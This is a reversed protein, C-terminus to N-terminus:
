AIYSKYLVGELDDLQEETFFKSDIHWTDQRTKKFHSLTNKATRGVIGDYNSCKIELLTLVKPLWKPPPTTYPYAEVMGCLGMTAGHVLLLQESNMKGGKVRKNEKLVQKFKKYCYKIISERESDLFILLLLQFLSKYEERLDVQGYFLKEICKEFLIKRHEFSRELFRVSAYTFHFSGLLKSKSKSLQKWGMDNVILDIIEVAQEDTYRINAFMMFWIDVRLESLKCADKMEDLENILPLVFPKFYKGMLGNQSTKLINLMLSRVGRVHCMFDSNAIEQSTLGITSDKLKITENLIKVMEDDFKNEIQFIFTPESDGDTIVKKMFEDFNNNSCQSQYFLADFLVESVETSITAYPHDLISFLKNTVEDFQHFRNLMSQMLSKLLSLRCRLSFPSIKSDKSVEFDCISNLIQPTRRMDFHSPLWWCFISWLNMTSQTLDKNFINTIRKSFEKDAISMYEQKKKCAFLVGCIIETCAVHTSREEAEYLEDFLTFFDKLKLNPTLDYITLTVISCFFYVIGPMFVANVESEDIHNQMLKKLWGKTISASFKEIAIKETENLNLTPTDVNLHVKLNNNWSLTPVWIKNDIFFKPHTLNKMEEFFDNSNNFGSINNLESINPNIPNISLINNLDYNFYARTEVTDLVSAMWCMGKKSLEPHSGDIFKIMSELCYPDLPVEYHSHIDHLLELVMQLFKWNLSKNLRSVTVKVLNSLNKVLHQRKKSKALKLANIKLDIDLDPPRICEVVSEEFICVMLPIKVYKKIARYLKMAMATVEAENIDLSRVILNEYKEAVSGSKIALGRLRRKDFVILINVLKEKDNNLLAQEWEKFIGFVLYTCNMVRSLVQGLIHSSMQSTETYNSASVTVLHSILKKDLQSPLRTCRSMNIRSCHYIAMRAGIVTRTCPVYLGPFDQQEVFHANDIYFPNNHSFYGCDNIWTGICSILRSIVDVNGDGNSLYIALSDFCKGITFRMKHLKLYNPDMLKSMKDGSFYAGFSYLIDARKTLSADVSEFDKGLSPTAAGSPSVSCVDIDMGNDEEKNENDIDIDIEVEKVVPNVELMDEDQDEQKSHDEKENSEKAKMHLSNLMATQTITIPQPKQIFSVSSESKNMDSLSVASSVATREFGNTLKGFNGHPLEDKYDPDFLCCVGRNYGDLLDLHLCLQDIEDLSAREIDTTNLKFNNIWEISASALNEYRETIETVEAEGPIYWNFKLNDVSLRYSDFQFGGWCKESYKGGNKSLWDNSILRREVLRLISAAQFMSNPMMAASFASEGKLNYTKLIFFKELKEMYPIVAGGSGLLIGSFLKMSWVLKKDRDLIEHSRTSGAGDDIEDGILPLFYNVYKELQSEPERRVIVEAINSFVIAVEHHVHTTIYDYFKKSLTQFFEDSMSEVLAEFCSTIVASTQSEINNADMTVSNELLLFSRDFIQNFFEMFSSTGSKLAELELESDYEFHDTYIGDFLLHSKNPATAYFKAELYALHNSCFQVALLGGDGSGESLDALPILSFITKFLEATLITKEPDNSDIGPVLMTLFRVVHIRYVPLEVMFRALGTLQRIVIPIRHTSNLSEFSSYWDPIISDLVLHPKCYCLVELSNTYSKRIGQSKSQSGLHISPLLMKVISEVVEDNLKIEEPLNSMDFVGDNTLHSYGKESLLRAHMVMALKNIFKSLLGSWAGSNSPHLLTLTSSIITKLHDIIGEKEFAFKTSLSHMIITVLISCYKNTKDNKSRSQINLYLQNIVFSMQNKTLIGFKGMAMLDPNKASQSLSSQVVRQILQLLSNAETNSRNSKWLAFWLPMYHRADFKDFEFSGDSKIVPKRFRLPILASMHIFVSSASQNSYASIMQEMIEPICDDDFYVRCAVALSVLKKMRNSNMTNGFSDPQGITTAFENNILKWNLRLGSLYLENKEKGLLNIAQVYHEIDVAQGRALCVAYFVKILDACLPLPVLLGMRLLNKLEKTWYKLSIISASETDIKLVPTAVDRSDDEDESSYYDSEEQNEDDENAENENQELTEFMEGTIETASKIYEDVNRKNLLVEKANQLDDVSISLNGKLDLGKISIYLHSIVHSLYKYQDRITETKYPLLEKHLLSNKKNTAFFHSNRDQLLKLADKDDNTINLGYHALRDIEVKANPTFSRGMENAGSRPTLVNGNFPIHAGQLYEPVPSSM